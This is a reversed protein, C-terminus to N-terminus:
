LSEGLERLEQIAGKWAQGQGIDFVVKNLCVNAECNDGGGKTKKVKKKRKKGAKEEEEEFQIVLLAKNAVVTRNSHTFM